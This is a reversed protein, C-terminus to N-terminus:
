STELCYQSMRCLFPRTKEPKEGSPFLTSITSFGELAKKRAVWYWGSYRELGVLGSGAYRPKTVAAYV